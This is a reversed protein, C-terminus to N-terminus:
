SMFRLDPTVHELSQALWTGGLGAQKKNNNQAIHWDAECFYFASTRSVQSHPGQPVAFSNVSM